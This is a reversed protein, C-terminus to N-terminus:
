LRRPGRRHQRDVSQANAWGHPKPLGACIGADGYTPISGGYAPQRRPDIAQELDYAFALLKAEEYAAAYLSLGAPMGDAGFGVPLSINPYGAVAAPTSAFSYSPAVIADFGQALVADIGEISAKQLCLARQDAYGPEARGALSEALEFLPQGFYRMEQACHAENFAIVDALTRIGTQQLPALYEGLDDKFECLLVTFEADFYELPDGTDVDAVTAGLDRMVLLAAEIAPNRGDPEGFLSPDFYRRDVGIRRGALAGRQLVAAYDAAPRALAGLLVAADTVSRGMPGATDQSRAIPIIGGAPVLGVTPKLGVVNNQGAPYTISGDTETGVAASCLNAAAAVASGSSSGGPDFGRDYPNATFGGRASWGNFPAFDRFNAWESLNAKGLIVAGAKRLQAVLPADGPVRSGVLALSGATTQMGDGTAINDKVLIPIGHLPGRLFGARRENDRQTAIAVAVASTEIVANLLPNLAQLRQLYALTLARSTLAGAAMLDQLRPISAEFWPEGEGPVSAALPSAEFVSSWPRALLLAGGAAGAGLFARRTLGTHVDRTGRM